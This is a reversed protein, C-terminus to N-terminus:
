DQRTVFLFLERYHLAKKKGKAPSDINFGSAGAM